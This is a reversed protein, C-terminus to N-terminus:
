FLAMNLFQLYGYGGHYPLICINPNTNKYTISHKSGGSVSSPIDAEPVTVCIM